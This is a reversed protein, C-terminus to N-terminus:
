YGTGLLEIQMTEPKKVRDRVYDPWPCVLQMWGLQRDTISVAYQRGDSLTARWICHYSFAPHIPVFCVEEMYLVHISGQLYKQVIIYMTVLVLGCQMHTLFVMDLLRKMDETLTITTVTGNAKWQLTDIVPLEQMPDHELDGQEHSFSTDGTVLNYSFLSYKDRICHRQRALSFAQWM